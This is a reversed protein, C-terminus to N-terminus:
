SSVSLCVSLCHRMSSMCVSLASLSNCLFFCVSLCLSHVSLCYWKSSVSLCYWVFSGSLCVSQCVPLASLSDCLCVSLILYFVCVSLCYHSFVSLSAKVCFVCDSDSNWTCKLGHLLYRMNKCYKPTMLWINICLYWYVILEDRIEFLCSCSGLTGCNISARAIFLSSFATKLECLFISHSWELSLSTNMAELKLFKSSNGKCLAPHRIDHKFSITWNNQLLVKFNNHINVIKAIIKGQVLSNCRDTWNFVCIESLLAHHKFKSFHALLKSLSFQTMFCYYGHFVVSLSVQTKLGPLSLITLHGSSRLAM